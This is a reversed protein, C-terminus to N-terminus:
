TLLSKFWIAVQKYPLVPQQSPKSLLSSGREASASRIPSLDAKDEVAGTWASKLYIPYQHTRLPSRVIDGFRRFPSCRIMLTAMRKDSQM